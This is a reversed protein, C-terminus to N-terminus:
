IEGHLAVPAPIIPATHYPIKLIVQCGNSTDSSLKFEFKGPYLEQLRAQTNALGIGRSESFKRDSGAREPKVALGPGNDGVSLHLTNETRYGSIKILGPSRKPEIGHRVANEVLPQLIFTPVLADLVGSEIQQEVTLRDKFRIQEIELYQSLFALERRLTIEQEASTDLSARLLESLNGIMNDAAEPKTHVLTSIANLTNFLFHPNIQMRLAQLKAAALSAELELTRRERQQSRRFNFIAHCVSVTAWYILLDHGLRFNIPGPGEFKGHVSGQGPPPPGIEFDPKPRPMGKSFPSKSLFLWRSVTQNAGIVFACTALHVFINIVLRKRELPFRLSVIAVLPLLFAWAFWFSVAGTLAEGWSASGM